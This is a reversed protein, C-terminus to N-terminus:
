ELTMSGSLTNKMREALPFNDTSQTNHDTALDITDTTSYFFQAANLVIRIKTTDGATVNINQLFEKELFLPNLGLHFLFFPAIDADVGSTDYRGELKLFIYGTNWGWHADKYISLPHEESYVAPDGNNLSPDVGIAFKLGKYTDACTNIIIQEGINNDSNHNNVFDLYDVDKLLVESNDSKILKLNSLYFRLAEFKIKYGSVNIYQNNKIVINEGNMKAKFEVVVVADKVVADKNEKEKEKKCSAIFAMSLIVVFVPIIRRMLITMKPHFLFIIAFTALNKSNNVVFFAL